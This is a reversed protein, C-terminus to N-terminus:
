REIWSACRSLALFDAVVSQGVEEIVHAAVEADGAALLHEIRRAPDGAVEAASRHLSALRAPDRAALRRRLFDAFLDHYRHIGAEADVREVLFHLRRHLGAVVEAADARNALSRVADPSLTHLVCTDELLRQVDEPQDALIEDALYDYLAVPDPDLVGPGALLTGRELSRGLLQIGTAWGAARDVVAKVAPSELGLGLRGNLLLDTQHADLRLDEGRVEALRGTARLRSLGIAPDRRATLLLHLTPPAHAALHDLAALASSDTIAHLDDLVVLFPPPAGALVDNVLVGAARRPDLAAPLSSGVLDLVAPCGTPVVSGMALALLYVFSALDDDAADLTVWACPLDADAAVAAALTTKGAGAQASVLTVPVTRVAIRLAAVLDRRLVVDAAPDPRPAEHAAGVGSGARRGVTHCGRRWSRGEPPEGPAESNEAESCPSSPELLPPGCLLATGAHFSGSGDLTRLLRRGEAMLVPAPGRGVPPGPRRLLRRGPRHRGPGPRLREGVDAGDGRARALHDLTGPAWHEMGSTALVSGQVDERASAGAPRGNMTCGLGRGASVTEGAWPCATIGLLVGHEDEVAVLVGWTVVGRVYPSTGDIPDLIWRRGSTGVVDDEEEGLVGDDPFSAAIGRRLLREVDRDYPTVVTGDPKRHVALDPQRFGELALEGARAVLGGVEALLAPDCAPPTADAM